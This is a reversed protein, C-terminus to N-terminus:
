ESVLPNDEGVEIILTKGAPIPIERSEIDNWSLSVYVEQETADEDDAM